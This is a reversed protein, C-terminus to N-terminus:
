LALPSCYLATPLRFLRRLHLLEKSILGGIFALVSVAAGGTILCSRPALESSKIASENLKLYFEFANDHARHADECKLDHAWKEHDSIEAPKQEDTM